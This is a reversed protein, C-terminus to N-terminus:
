VQPARMPQQARAEDHKAARALLWALIHQVGEASTASCRVCAFERSATETALLEDIRLVTHLTDVAVQEPLDVKNIAVLVPKTRLDEAGLATFLEVSSAGLATAAAADIVFIVADCEAFYRPWVPIMSGGMERLVLSRKDAMIQMLETGISPITDRSVEDAKGGKAINALQRVLLTKGAGEVGIVLGKFAVRDADV